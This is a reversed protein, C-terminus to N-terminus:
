RRALRPKLRAPEPRAAQPFNKLIDHIAHGVKQDVHGPRPLVRQFRADIAHAHPQM